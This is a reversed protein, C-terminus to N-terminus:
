DTLVWNECGYILIPRLITKYMIFKTKRTIEKKRLFLNELIPVIQCCKCSIM